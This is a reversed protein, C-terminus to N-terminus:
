KRAYKIYPSKLYNEDMVKYSMGSTKLVYPLSLQDISHYRSTHYWWEKLIPTAFPKYVFVTSAYLPDEPNVEMLQEDILENEYRPTIYPCNISLRHKLYDAEEQVTSRTPHKLVAIQYQDIQRVLWEISQPHSLYVSGDHWIYLDYGPFMQWGFMKVIRAQLRPSMSAFRPPFEDDTVRFFDHPVTQPVNEVIKREFDGLNATIVAIKM